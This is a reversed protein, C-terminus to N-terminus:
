YSEGAILAKAHLLWQLTLVALPAGITILLGEVMSVGFPMAPSQGCIGDAGFLWPIWQDLLMFEPFGAGMSCSAFITGKEVGWAYWSTYLGGGLLVVTLTLFMWRWWFDRVRLSGLIATIIAGAVWARVQVCLACPYYDLVYQYFLAIGEMLLLYFIGTYWFLRKQSLRYLSQM